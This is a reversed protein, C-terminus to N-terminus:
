TLEDISESFDPSGTEDAAPRSRQFTWEAKDAQDTRLATASLTNRGPNECTSAGSRRMQQQGDRYADMCKTKLRDPFSPAPDFTLRKM